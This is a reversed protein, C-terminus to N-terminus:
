RQFRRDAPGKCFCAQDTISWASLAATAAESTFMTHQKMRVQHLNLLTQAVRLVAKKNRCPMHKVLLFSELDNEKVVAPVRRKRVAKGALEEGM